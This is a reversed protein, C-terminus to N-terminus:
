SEAFRWAPWAAANASGGANAPQGGQCPPCALGPTALQASGSRIVGLSASTLCIMYGLLTNTTLAMCQVAQARHIEINLVLTKWGITIADGLPSLRQTGLGTHQVAHCSM